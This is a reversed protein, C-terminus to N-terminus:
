PASSPHSSPPSSPHPDLDAFYDLLLRHAFSYGGGVRRLLIRMTADELFPVARLPFTRWLWCRLLSHQMVALLGGSLGGSLRGLLRGSWQYFGRQRPPLWNLQLQELFFVTQNHTRMQRALWGLWATTVTLSYRKADGKRSVMRQVYDAWIQEQLQAQREGTPTIRVFLYSTGYHASSAGDDM